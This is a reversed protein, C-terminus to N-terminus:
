RFTGDVLITLYKANEHIKMSLLKPARSGVMSIRTRAPHPIAGSSVKCPPQFDVGPKRRPSQPVTEDQPARPVKM